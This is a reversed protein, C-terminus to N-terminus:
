PHMKKYIYEIVIGTAGTKSRVYNRSVESAIKLIYVDSLLFRIKNELEIYNTISFAGGKEILECAERFKHYNPGFIVPMGFAAAELVNHIGKGFGGGIYAIDGYQYVGSLM